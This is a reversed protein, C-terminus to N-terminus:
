VQLLMISHSQDLLAKFIISKSVTINIREQYQLLLKIERYFFYVILLDSIMNDHSKFDNNYFDVFKDYM